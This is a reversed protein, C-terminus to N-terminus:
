KFSPTRFGERIKFNKMYQSLTCSGNLRSLFKIMGKMKRLGRPCGDLSCLMNHIKRESFGNSSVIRNKKITLKM